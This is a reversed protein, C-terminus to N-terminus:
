FISPNPSRPSSNRTLQQGFDEAVLHIRNRRTWQETFEPSEEELRRVCEDFAQEILDSRGVEVALSFRYFPDSGALQDSRLLSSFYEKQQDFSYVVLVQEDFAFLGNKTYDFQSLYCSTEISHQVYTAADSARVIEPGGRFQYAVVLRTGVRGVPVVVSPYGGIPNDHGVLVFSTNEDMM